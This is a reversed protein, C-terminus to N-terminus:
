PFTFLPTHRQLLFFLKLLRSRLLFKRLLLRIEWLIRRAIPSPQLITNLTFSKAAVHGFAPPTNRNFRLHPRAQHFYRAKRTSCQLALSGGLLTPLNGSPPWHGPLADRFTGLSECFLLKSIRPRLHCSKPSLMLFLM